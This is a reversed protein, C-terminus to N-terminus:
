DRLGGHRRLPLTNFLELARHANAKEWSSQSGAEEKKGFSFKEPSAADPNSQKKKQGGRLRSGGACDRRVSRHGGRKKIRLEQLQGNKM